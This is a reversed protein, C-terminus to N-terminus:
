IGNVLYDTIQNREKDRCPLIDPVATLQLSACVRDYENDYDEARIAKKNVEIIM